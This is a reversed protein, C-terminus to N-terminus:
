LISNFLKISWTCLKPVPDLFPPFHQVLM